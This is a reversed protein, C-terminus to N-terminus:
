HVPPHVAFVMSFGTLTFNQECADTSTVNQLRAFYMRHIECLYNVKVATPTLKAELITRNQLQLKAEFTKRPITESVTSLQFKWRFYREISRMSRM